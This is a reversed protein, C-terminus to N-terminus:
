DRSKRWRIFDAFRSVEDIEDRSLGDLSIEVQRHDQELREAVARLLEPLEVGFACSLRNMTEGSADKRGNELESLFSLSLGSEEALARLSSGRRSRYDAITRGLAHRYGADVEREDTM